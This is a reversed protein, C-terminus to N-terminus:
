RIGARQGVLLIGDSGTRASASLLLWSRGILPLLRFLWSPDFPVGLAVDADRQIRKARAAEQLKRLKPISKMFAVHKMSKADWSRTRMSIPQPPNEAAQDGDVMTRRGSEHALYIRNNEPLFMTALDSYNYNNM